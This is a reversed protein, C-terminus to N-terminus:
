YEYTKEDGLDRRVEVNLRNLEGLGYQRQAWRWAAESTKFGDRRDHEGVYGANEVVTYTAGKPRM